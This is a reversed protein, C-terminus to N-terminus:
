YNNNHIGVIKHDDVNYRLYKLFLNNYSLIFWFM